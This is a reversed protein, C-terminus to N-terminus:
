QGFLNRVAELNPDAPPDGPTKAQGDIVPASPKMLEKLSNAHATLEDETGGRLVDSPVGTADAVQKVLKSHDRESEFGQVQETLETTTTELETIREQAQQLENQTAQLEAYNKKSKAEWDRSHAKWDTEQAPTEQTPAGQDEDSM